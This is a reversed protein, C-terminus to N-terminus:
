DATQTIKEPPNEAMSRAKGIIAPRAEFDILAHEGTYSVDNVYANDYIWSVLSMTKSNLPLHLRERHLDPLVTEIEEFLTDINTGERASVCIPNAAIGRIAERKEKLEQETLKDMKNLVVLVRGERRDRLVDFTTIMKERMEPVSDTADVVLLVVDARYVSHLTSQFSEILWHPLGSLFGVTDTLVVERKEMEVRRTTTGLTTFLEDNVEATPDLDPHLNENQGVELEAALRQMLTSKGSNTYGALSIIDFGSDRRHKRRHEEVTERRDLEERIRSIRDKIDRERSEDYEGLGMFGPKEDRKALSAKAETRPLEYRLGALEVQLEAKRTDARQAFIWLILRFRDIVPTKDPLRLGINYTQYPGLRNDFIVIDADTKHVLDALEDVKGAGINYEPDKERSQVVEGVVRCGAAQVLSRIEKTDAELNEGVRKVIIASPNYGTV